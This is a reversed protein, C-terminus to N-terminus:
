IPSDENDGASAEVEDGARAKLEGRKEVLLLLEM